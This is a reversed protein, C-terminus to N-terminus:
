CAFPQAPTDAGPVASPSPPDDRTASSSLRAKAHRRGCVDCMQWQQHSVPRPHATWVKLAVIRSEIALDVSITV